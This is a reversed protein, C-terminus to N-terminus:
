FPSNMGLKTNFELRARRQQRNNAKIEKRKVLTNLPILVLPWIMTLIILPLPTTSYVSASQDVTTPVFLWLEGLCFLLHCLIITTSTFLWCRNSLPSRQWFLHCRHVFGISIAILYLVLIFAVFTQSVLLHEPSIYTFPKRGIHGFHWDDDLPKSNGSNQQLNSFNYLIWAFSSVVLLMSPSFKILYCLLFYVVSERGLNLNKGTAMTMVHPDVPTGMLSFSLVPLVFFVLWIVQGSTLLPPLLLMSAFLQVISLSLSCCLLFQLSNRLNNMFSRAEMVLRYLSFPDERHLSLSCPLSILHRALNTPSMFGGSLQSTLVEDGEIVTEKVCIEPYLPEIAISVDAQLFIPINYINASSGLVCVVEGYEQMISIMERTTEPTCDTFLSVLLPVNDVNELHPRINEIGKPLKARNLIDFAITAGGPGGATETGTSDTVRSPSPSSVNASFKRAANLPKEEEGESSSSSSSSSSPSSIDDIVATQGEAFKVLCTELSVSCPASQSRLVTANPRPPENLSIKSGSKGNVHSTNMLSTDKANCYYANSPSHLSIHCNWGSELGMKESFVRSRLENEKSFHVFRICAKELQEVLQVFDPCAQYQMTVMGIFVENNMQAALAEANVSENSPKPESSEQAIADKVILSENSLYHSSLRSQSTNRGDIADSWRINGIDSTVNAFVHSSDPALELYYGQLKAADPCVTVPVYSFAMCYATLSSRHYFDLIRKRDSDTLMRLDTGDWYESCADLVLDGTGQSFLQYTNTIKEKILASSVHPFPMKLRPINLSNLLKGHQIIEHRVHRFMAIQYLYQYDKVASDTFGIQRSLECLCRKNVVPVAVENNLAECTIHDCFRIYEEHAQPNCTNLLLALGLPKLNPLFRDWNPDDFQMHSTSHPDHTVDLVESRSQSKLKGKRRRVKVGEDIGVSGTSSKEDASQPSMLDSVTSFKKSTSSSTLFFVKDATPNPWSLIGKKDVCCLATLSGLSQLLGASRWLTAKRCFLLDVVSHYIERISQKAHSDNLDSGVETDIDDFCLDSSRKQSQMKCGNDDHCINLLKSVGLATLVLWSIPLSFPVLPLIVLALRNFFNTFSRRTLNTFHDTQFFFIALLIMVSIPVMICEIYTSTIQHREKDYLSKPRKCCKDFCKKIFNIYPTELLVFEAPEASKRLRAGTFDATVQDGQPVYIEGEKLQVSEDLTNSSCPSSSALRQCLGPAATGPCLKIVDGSVLLVTPLNVVRGDRFTWQLTICPSHPLYLQPFFKGSTWAELDATSEAELTSKILDALYKVKLHLEQQCCQTDFSLIVLNILLVTVLIISQMLHSLDSTECFTIILLVSCSLALLVSPWRFTSAISRHSFAEYTWKKFGSTGHLPCTCNDLERDLEQRLKELAQLSSLGIPDVKKSQKGSEQHSM